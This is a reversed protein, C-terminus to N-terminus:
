EDEEGDEGDDETGPLGRSEMTRRVAGACPCDVFAVPRIKKVSEPIAISDLSRCQYFMAYPIETVVDPIVFETVAAPVRELRASVPTSKGEPYVYTYAFGPIGDCTEETYVSREKPPTEASAGGNERDRTAKAIRATFVTFLAASVVLAACSLVTILFLRHKM